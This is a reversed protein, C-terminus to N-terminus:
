GTATEGAQADEAQAMADKLGNREDLLEGIRVLFPFVLKRFDQFSEGDPFINRHSSHINLVGLRAERPGAETCVFYPIAISAFSRVRQGAPHETFYLHGRVFVDETINYEGTARYAQLIARTDSTIYNGERELFATPAGPLYRKKGNTQSLPRAPVPLAMEEILPDSNFNDTDDDSASLKPNLHLVGALGQPIEEADVHPKLLERFRPGDAAMVEDWHRFLMINAAFRGHEEVQFQRALLLVAHLGLRITKEIDEIEQAPSGEAGDNCCYAAFNHYSAYCVLLTDRSPMTRITTFLEREKRRVKHGLAIERLGFLASFLLLGWYFAGSVSPLAFANALATALDSTDSLYANVPRGVAELHASAYVGLAITLLSLLIAVFPSALLDGLMSFLRRLSLGLTDLIGGRSRLYATRILRRLRTWM